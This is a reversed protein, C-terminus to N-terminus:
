KVGRMKDFLKKINPAHVAGIKHPTRAKAQWLGDSETMLYRKDGDKRMACVCDFVHPAELGTAKGIFMPSFLMKETDDKEKNLKAFAVIHFPALYQKFWVNIVDRMIEGVERYAALTDPVGQKNVCTKRKEEFLIESVQTLSDIVITKYKGESEKVVKLADKFDKFSNITIYPIKENSISELGKEASLIIPKECTPVLTTKGVGAAGYVLAKIGEKQSLESTCHITVM